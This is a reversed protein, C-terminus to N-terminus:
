GSIEITGTMAPHIGCVYSYTGPANFVLSGADGQALTETECGADGVVASHPQSDENTWTIVDGVAATVPDPEFAFGAIAVDVAAADTSSECDAAAESAATSPPAASSAPPASTAATGGCAALVLALSATLALMSLRQM